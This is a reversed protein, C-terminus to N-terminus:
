KKSGGSSTFVVDRCKKQAGWHHEIIIYLSNGPTLFSPFRTEPPRFIPFDRRRPDSLADGPTSFPSIADGATRFSRRRADFHSYLLTEPFHTHLFYVNKVDKKSQFFLRLPAESLKGIIKPPTVHIRFVNPCETRVRSSTDGM